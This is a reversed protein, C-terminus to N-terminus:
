WEEEEDFAPPEDGFDVRTERRTEAATREGTEATEMEAMAAIEDEDDDDPGPAFLPRRDAALTEAGPAYRFTEDGLSEPDQEIFADLSEQGGREPSGERDPSPSRPTPHFEDRLGKIANQTLEAELASVVMRATRAVKEVRGITYAFEGKPFMGHAWLQYTDM